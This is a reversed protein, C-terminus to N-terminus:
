KEKKKRNKKKMPIEDIYYFHNSGAVEDVLELNVQEGESYTAVEVKYGFSRGGATTLRMANGGILFTGKWPKNDKYIGSVHVNEGKSTLYWDEREELEFGNWLQVSAKEGKENYFVCEGKYKGIEQDNIHWQSLLQPSSRRQNANELWAEKTKFYNTESLLNGNYAYNKWSGIRADSDMEGVEYLVGAGHYSKYSGHAKGRNFNIEALSGDEYKNQIVWLGQRQGNEYAGLFEKGHRNVLKLAGHYKGNKFGTWVTDGQYSSQVFRGNLLSDSATIFSTYFSVGVAFNTPFAYQFFNFDHYLIEESFRTLRYHGPNKSPTERELEFVKKTSDANGLYQIFYEQIIQGSDNRKAFHLFFSPKDPRLVNPITAPVYEVGNKKTEQAIIQDHRKEYDEWFGFTTQRDFYDLLHRGDFLYSFYDNKQVNQELESDDVLIKISDRRIWKFSQTVLEIAEVFEPVDVEVGYTYNHHTIRNCKGQNNCYAKDTRLIEWGTSDNEKLAFGMWVGKDVHLYSNLVRTLNLKKGIELKVGKNLPIDTIEFTLKKSETDLFKGGVYVDCMELDKLIDESSYAKFVSFLFVIAWKLKM